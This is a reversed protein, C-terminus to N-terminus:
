YGDTNGERVKFPWSGDDGVYKYGNFSKRIEGCKLEGEGWKTWQRCYQGDDEITYTGTDFDTGWKSATTGDKRLYQSWDTDYITNGVLLDRTETADLGRAHAAGSAAVALVVVLTTQLVRHM